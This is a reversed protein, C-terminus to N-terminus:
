VVPPGGGILRQGAKLAIGGNLPPVNVPSPDVIITDGPASAAQAASLTNFPLAASGNGGPAASASVHWTNSVSPSPGQAAVPSAATITGLAGLLGLVLSGKRAIYRSAANWGEVTDMIEEM